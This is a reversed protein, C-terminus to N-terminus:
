KKIMMKKFEGLVNYSIFSITNIFFVAINEIM